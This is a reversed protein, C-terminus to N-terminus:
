HIRLEVADILPSSRHPWHPHSQFRLSVGFSPDQVDQITLNGNWLFNEGGYIKKVELDLSAQNEGILSDNLCLQITEDTIRGYRNIILRMEIGSLTTPLNTFNFGTLQLYYTKDTLDHRPDRATHFLDRTTRVSKGDLSKLGYFGGDDLWSIHADEGGPEAYQIITTPLTWETTM